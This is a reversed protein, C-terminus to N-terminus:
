CLKDPLAVVRRSKQTKPETIVERGEIQQFSKTISVTKKEFDFDSLTRALLEGIRM